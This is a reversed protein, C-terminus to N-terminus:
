SPTLGAERRGRRKIKEIDLSGAVGSQEGEILQDV